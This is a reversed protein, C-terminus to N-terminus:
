VRSGHELTAEDWKSYWGLFLGLLGRPMGCLKQLTEIVVLFVPLQVIPLFLKWTQVGHRKVIEKGKASSEKVAIKRFVIPGEKGHEQLVERTIVHAWALVLPRM